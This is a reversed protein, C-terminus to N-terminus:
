ENDMRTKPRLTPQVGKWIRERPFMSTRAGIARDRDDATRKPSFTGNACRRWPGCLLGYVIQMRDSRHDRSHGFRALPCCRGEVYSSSVDYLVLTGDHLHRRALADEISTHAQGLWDLAAYLENIHVKGLGLTV